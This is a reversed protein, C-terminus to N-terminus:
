VKFFIRRLTLLISHHVSDSVSAQIIIAGYIYEQLKTFAERRERGHKPTHIYLIFQRTIICATCASSTYSSVDSGAIFIKKEGVFNQKKEKQEIRIFFCIM